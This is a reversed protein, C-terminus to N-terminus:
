LFDPTLPTLTVANEYPNNESKDNISKNASTNSKDSSTKSPRPRPTAMVLTPLRTIKSGTRSARFTVNAMTSLAPSQTRPTSSSPPTARSPFAMSRTPLPMLSPSLWTKSQASTLVSGRGSQPSHRAIAVGPLTTSSSFTRPPTWSLLTSTTALLSRSPATTTQPNPSPSLTPDSPAPSSSMGM